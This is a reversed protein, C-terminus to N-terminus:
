FLEGLDKSLSHGKVSTVVWGQRWLSRWGLRQKRFSVELKMPWTVPEGEVDLAAVVDFHGTAGPSRVDIDYARITLEIRKAARLARQSIRLVDARTLGSDDQYGQAVCGMIESVSKAEFGHKARAVLQDLLQRDTPQPRALWVGLVAAFLVFLLAKGSRRCAGLNLTM